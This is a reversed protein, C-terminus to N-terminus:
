DGGTAVIEVMLTKAAGLALYVQVIVSGVLIVDFVVDLLGVEIHVLMYLM